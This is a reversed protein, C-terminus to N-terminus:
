RAFQIRLPVTPQLSGATIVQSQATDVQGDDLHVDLAKEVSRGRLLHKPVPKVDVKAISLEYNTSSRAPIAAKIPAVFEEKPSYRAEDMFPNGLKKPSPATSPVDSPPSAIPDPIPVPSENFSGSSGSGHSPSVRQQTVAEYSEYSEGDMSSFDSSNNYGDCTADCKSSCVCKNACLRFFSAEVRGSAKNLCDLLGNGLGCIRPSVACPNGTSCSVENCDSCGCGAAANSAPVNGLCFAAIALSLYNRTFTRMTALTRKEDSRANPHSQCAPSSHRSKLNQMLLSDM